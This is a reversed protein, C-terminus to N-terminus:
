VAIRLAATSPLNARVLAAMPYPSVSNGVMKVQASKSFKRGDHGRDIIYNSPMGQCGYLEPPQLMRLGIDVIVYPTGKLHVTVLALRDKTTITRLPDNLSSINEGSGYYTMLFAAVKLAKEEIVDQSLTCEMLAHHNGSATLTRLPETLARADCNKRLQILNASVLQQQSGTNTITTLPKNASHGPTTNFGGNMQALYACSMGLAHPAGAPRKCNGGATISPLPTDIRQGIHDARFKVLTPAVVAFSGGTPHATITRLPEATSQVVDNSWNAIPVIFPSADDLVFKKIGKAIRRMTADALPNKREFISPCPTAFDIHNAAVDQKKQGRTPKKAHTPTPWNIPHGDCRAVLFLRERSTAAGYDCAALLKHDVTYGLGKLHQIFRRWTKSKRKPDPVLFQQDVPVREGPAAITRDLKIVRGTAKCRKAILPGWNRIQKVNEMTILDPKAQGAWMCIVWSLSRSSKSRPQGGAAQSHHTCDPSAHLHSVGRGQTVQHPKVEYVDCTFHRTHPHNVRHMSIADDNHNVAIDVPMGTAMETGISAGGGGAFLDVSIKNAYNLQYQTHLNM